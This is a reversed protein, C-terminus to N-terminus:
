HLFFETFRYVKQCERKASIVKIDDFVCHIGAVSMHEGGVVAGIHDGPVIVAQATVMNLAIVTYVFNCFYDSLNISVIIMACMSPEPRIKM